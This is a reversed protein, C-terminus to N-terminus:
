PRFDLQNAIQGSDIDAVYVPLLSNLILMYHSFGNYSQAWETIAQKCPEIVLM